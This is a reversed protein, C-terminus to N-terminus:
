NKQIVSSKLINRQAFLKHHKHRAQHKIDFRQIRHNDHDAVYLNGYRDFSLGYPDKFQNAAEGRGNGGAIVSGQRDGKSWCRIQNSSSDTVYLTGLTDVFIGAPSNLHALTTGYGNDGAAVVGEKADKNWKMVRHNKDSVYVSQEWDVFVFSPYNLQDLRYGQGNGGAVLIGNRDGIRYRRVEHRGNDSAYLYRQHDMALGRCGINNILIEGEKTDKTRSWRVVRNNGWDAIIVSDTENDILVNGPTDLQDLRNGPGNGGAVVEGVMDGIRWQIIRNNDHDAIVITQDDADIFFGYPLSLEDNIDNGAVITGKESWQNDFPVKVM